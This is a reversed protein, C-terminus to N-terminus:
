GLRVRLAARSSAAGRANRRRRLTCRESRRSVIEGRCVPRRGRRSWLGRDRDCPCSLRVQNAYTRQFASKDANLDKFQLLGVDGLAGITDHAAEAPVMLQKPRM